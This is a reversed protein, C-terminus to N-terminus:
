GVLYVDFRQSKTELSYNPKRGGLFEAYDPRKVVVRRRACALAAPLLAEADADEGVLARFVRMEKKVLASKKRHPYMPDLYVVDPRQDESLGRMYAPAQAHVLRWRSGLLAGLEGDALARALADALLAHIVPSREVMTVACGACALVFGDRGMGATADLVTPKEKANGVVAKVVAEGGGHTRRWGLEGHLFDFALPKEAPEALHLLELREPTLRLAFSGPPQDAGAPSEQVLAIGLDQALALAETRREPATCLLSLEPM